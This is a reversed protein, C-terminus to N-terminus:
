FSDLERTRRDVSGNLTVGCRLEALCDRHVLRERWQRDVTQPISERCVKCVYAADSSGTVEAPEGSTSNSTPEM